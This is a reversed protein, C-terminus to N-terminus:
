FKIKDYITIFINKNKKYKAKAYNKKSTKSNIYELMADEFDVSNKSKEKTALFCM